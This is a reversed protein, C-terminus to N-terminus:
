SDMTRARSPSTPLPGHFPVSLSIFPNLQNEMGLNEPLADTKAHKAGCGPMVAIYGLCVMSIFGGGITGCGAPPTIINIIL